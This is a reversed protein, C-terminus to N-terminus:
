EDVRVLFPRRGGKNAKWDVRGEPWRVGEREGILNKAKDALVEFTQTAATLDQKARGLDRFLQLHEGDCFDLPPKTSRPFRWKTLDQSDPSGDPEPPVGQLVHDTWFRREADILHAAIDEDYEINYLKIDTGLLVVLDCRRLECCIMNHTCQLYYEEPVQGPDGWEHANHFGAVKLEVLTRFDGIADPHCSMWPFEKSDVGPQRHDAHDIDLHGKDKMVFKRYWRQLVPEIQTGLWCPLYDDLHGEPALGMVVSYAWHKSKSGVGLVAAALSGGIRKPGRQGAQLIPEQERSDAATGNGNLGNANVPRTSPHEQAVDPGSEAVNGPPKRSDREGLAVKRPASEVLPPFLHAPIGGAAAKDAEALAPLNPQASSRKRSLKQAM